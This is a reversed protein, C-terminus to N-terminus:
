RSTMACSSARGTRTHRYLPDCTWSSMSSRVSHADSWSRRATGAACTCDAYPAPCATRSSRPLDIGDARMVDADFTRCFFGREDVHPTPRFTLAGAIRPVANVEVLIGHTRREALGLCLPLVPATRNLAQIQSKEDVSVVVANDPPVLYLGVVDRIKAELWPDTSFKFTEIRHPQLGQKRWIRAM